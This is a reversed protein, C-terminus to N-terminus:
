THKRFDPLFPHVRLTGLFTRSDKGARETRLSNNAERVERITSPSKMTQHPGVQKFLMVKREQDFSNYSDDKFALVCETYKIFCLINLVFYNLSIDIKKQTLFSVFCSFMGGGWFLILKQFAFGIQDCILLCIDSVTFFFKKISLNNSKLILYAYVHTYIPNISNNNSNM